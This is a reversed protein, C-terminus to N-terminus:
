SERHELMELFLREDVIEIDCGDARLDVAKQLKKSLGAGDKLKRPDQYGTVVINTKPSVTSVVVGGAKMVAIEAENRSLHDLQGTFVIKKGLFDPDEYLEGPPLSELIKKRESATLSNSRGKHYCGSPGSDDLRGPRVNTKEALDFLDSGNKRRLLETAVLGATIADSEARHEAPHPLNLHLSVAELGFSAIPLVRRALVMSCFYDLDQGLPNGRLSKSLVRIDFGANHALLPSGGIFERAKPWFESFEPADAVDEPEIGHISINIGSFHEQYLFSTLKEGIRGDNFRVLSIECASDRDQNATEFDLSVFEM